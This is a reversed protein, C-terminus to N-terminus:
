RASCATIRYTLKCSDCGRILEALDGFVSNVVSRSHAKCYEESVQRDPNGLVIDLGPKVCFVEYVVVDFHNPVRFRLFGLSECEDVGRVRFFHVGDDASEIAGGEFIAKQAGIM